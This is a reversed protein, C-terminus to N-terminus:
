SKGLREAHVDVRGVVLLQAGLAGRRDRAPGRGRRVPDRRLVLVAVNVTTFV